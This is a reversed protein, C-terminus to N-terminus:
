HYIRKPDSFENLTFFPFPDDRIHHFSKYEYALM